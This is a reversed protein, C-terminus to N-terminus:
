GAKGADGVALARIKSRTRDIFGDVDTGGVEANTLVGVWGTPYGLEKLASKLVLAPGKFHRMPSLGGVLVVASVGKKEYGKGAYTREMWHSQIRDVLAKLKWPVGAFYIPSVVVVVDATPIIDYLIRHARDRPSICEGTSECHLCARCGAIDEGAVYVSETELGASRLEQLVAELIRESLGGRRLSGGIGVAKM